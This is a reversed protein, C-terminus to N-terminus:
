QRGDFMLTRGVGDDGPNFRCRWFEYALVVVPQQSAAPGAGRGALPMTGLSSFFGESVLCAPAFEPEEYGKIMYDQERYVVLSEIKKSTADRSLLLLRNRAANAPFGCPENMLKSEGERRKLTSEPLRQSSSLIM